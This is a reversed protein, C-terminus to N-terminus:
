PTKGAAVEAEPAGRLRDGAARTVPIAFCFRSGKGIESEVWIRGGHGEVIGKSIALGLGTGGEKRTTSSDLQQFKRFLKPIDEPAIGNGEDAITFAVERRLAEVSISVSTDPPSFKLANGVLNTLVQSLRFGDAELDPLDAPLSRELRIRKQAALGELNSVVELVLPAVAVRDFNLPFRSYEIKSFDLIDNILVILRDVNTQCIELLDKQSPHLNFYKPDSLLELSGKISTLPTRVEHSVVAVFESKMRDLEQAREYLQANVIAIAAQSGFLDLIERDERRFAGGERDLVDITGILAGKLVMPVVLASLTGLRSLVPDGATEDGVVESLQNAAVRGNVGEGERFRLARLKEHDVGVGVEGTFHGTNEKHLFIIGAKAGTVLVAREVILNLTRQVNLSESIEKGVEYLTAMRKTAEAVRQSLIEEQM